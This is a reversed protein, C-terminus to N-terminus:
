DTPHTGDGPDAAAERRRKTARMAAGVAVAGVGLVLVDDVVSGTAPLARGLVEPGEDGSGVPGGRGTKVGEVDVESAAAALAPGSMSQVM